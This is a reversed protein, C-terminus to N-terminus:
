RGTGAPGAQLSRLYGVIQWREAEPLRTWRPMGRYGNTLLWFLEGDAAAAVRPSRLAPHKGRGEGSAGHCQACHDQYLVRGAAVAETQGLAPNTRARAVAPVKTLWGGSSAAMLLPGFLLCALVTTSIRKM